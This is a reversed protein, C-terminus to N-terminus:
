KEKLRRCLNEYRPQLPSNAARSLHGINGNAWVGEKGRTIATYILNRSYFGEIYRQPIYVIVHKWESGQSKHITIAFSLQLLGTDLEIKEVTFWWQDIEDEVDDTYVKAELKFRHLDEHGHFAVMIADTEVEVVTGEEGNMINAEYHNKIMMVRDGLSWKRNRTDFVAPKDGNFYQSLTANLEPLVKNIPSIVTIDQPSYGQSHIRKVTDYVTDIATTFQLDFQDNSDFNIGDGSYTFQDTNKRIGDNNRHNEVLRHVPVLGSDIVERFLFGWSIPPLQNPDGIMTIKFQHNFFQIFKNFLNTTVMSTEDIILHQFGGPVGKSIAMHMTMVRQSGTVQKVRAVAKGTFSVILYQIHVLDLQHIMEKILTTKGSGAQGTIVSISDNLSMTIANQQESTLNENAWQLDPIPHPINVKHLAKIYDTVENEVLHPYKLYVMDNFEEMEYDKKMNTYVNSFYSFKKLESLPTAVYCKDILNNYIKRAVVGAQLQQETYKVGILYCIIKCKDITLPLITFPNVLCKQYIENPSDHCRKIDRNTMGLLYLRRLNRKKTWWTLIKDIQPLVLHPLLDIALAEDSDKPRTVWQDALNSLYEDVKNHSIKQIHKFLKNAKQEGFGTGKLGKLLVTQINKQNSGITVFPQYDFTLDGNLDKTVLGNITDGVTVPSFFPCLCKFEKTQRDSYIWFINVKARPTFELRTVTGIIHLKEM